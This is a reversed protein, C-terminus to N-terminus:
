ILKRPWFADGPRDKFIELSRWEAPLLCNLPAEAFMPAVQDDTYGALGCGVRTVHFVDYPRTLRCERAFALFDRVYGQIADLPLPKIDWDKTPIAYSYNRLGQGCGLIAGFHARAFRAAGKGHRGALNSGFVFVVKRGDPLRTIASM